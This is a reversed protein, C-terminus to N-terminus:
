GGFGGVATKSFAGRGQSTRVATQSVLRFAHRIESRTNGPTLIWREEIGMDRFVKRFDTRGNQVGVAAIIHQESELMDAVVRAVDGARFRQSHCDEGDTVIVTISRAPVGADFFEQTKAVVTALAAVTEDYLPTGGTASYNRTDMSVAQDLPAYPYLVTGNLYRTHIVVGSKQKSEGLAEVITNHGEIVLPENKAGHISGSDDILLTVLLVESAPIDDVHVGLGQQIKAGLDPLNLLQFSQDSLNGEDRAAAFLHDLNAPDSM